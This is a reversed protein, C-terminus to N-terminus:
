LWERRRAANRERLAQMAPSDTVLQSETQCHCNIVNWASGSPDGPFKLHEGSVWWGGDADEYQGETEMHGDRSNVFRCHWVRKTELGYAEHIYQDAEYLSQNRVRNLETQATRKANYQANGVVNLIRQMLKTRSEGAAISAGLERQLRRRVQMNEGLSRYKVKSFSSMIQADNM